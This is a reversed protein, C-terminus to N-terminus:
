LIKGQKISYRALNGNVNRLYIIGNKEESDVQSPQQFVLNNEECHLAYADVAMDFPDQEMVWIDGPTWGYAKYLRVCLSKDMRQLTDKYLQNITTPSVGAKRAVEAQNLPPDHRAMLVPLNSKVKM